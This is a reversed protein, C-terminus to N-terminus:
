HSGSLLWDRVVPWVAIIGTGAGIVSPWLICHFRKTERAAARAETRGLWDEVYGRSPNPLDPVFLRFKAGRGAGVGDRVLAAAVAAVGRRELEADWRSEPEGAILKMRGADGSVM